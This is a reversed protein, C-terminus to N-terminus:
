NKKVKLPNLNVKGYQELFHPWTQQLEKFFPLPISGPFTQKLQTSIRSTFRKLGRSDSHKAKRQRKKKKNPKLATTQDLKYLTENTIEPVAVSKLEMDESVVSISTKRAM